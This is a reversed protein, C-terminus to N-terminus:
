DFVYRLDFEIGHRKLLQIFEDEFNIKKHHAAQNKVYDRVSDLNSASVSFAGYGKQWAFDRRREKMWSSSNSKILSVAKSIALVPPVEILLHIHDEMGGIERVFM